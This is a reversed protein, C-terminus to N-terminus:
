AAVGLEMHLRQLGKTTVRLQPPALMEGNTRQIKFSRIRESLLGQEVRHQYPRNFGDIWKKERMWQFLRNQGIKIGHDRTLIHAADKVSLDGEVSALKDWSNAPGTLAEIQQAQSELTKNAEILAHAMLEPGTLQPAGYSGTKRIQPLVENTLWRRFTVAEPKDSRIVVEYMGSENVITVSRRQGGSSIDTQRVGAEDLRAAVNRSNAIELVTCLDALVFWPEGDIVVTRVNRGEYEFLQLSTV